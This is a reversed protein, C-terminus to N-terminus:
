QYKMIEWQAITQIRKISLYGFSPKKLAELFESNLVGMQAAESQHSGGLSDGKWRFMLAVPNM